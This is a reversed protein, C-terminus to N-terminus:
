RPNRRLRTAIFAVIAQRGVRLMLVDAFYRVARGLLLSLAFQPFVMGSAGAAISVAKASIPTLTSGIVFLAGYKTMMTMAYALTAGSIGLFAMLPKGLAEFTAAGIWFAVCGGLTSGAVAAAALRWAKPPDAAALPILMLESPGPVVSGQALGWLFTAPVAGRAHAFHEVRRWLRQLAPTV